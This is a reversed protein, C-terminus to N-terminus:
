FARSRQTQDIQSFAYLISYYHRLISGAYARIKTFVQWIQCTGGDEGNRAVPRDHPEPSAM